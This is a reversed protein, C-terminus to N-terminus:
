ELPEPARAAAITRSIAIKDLGTLAPLSATSRSLHEAVPYHALDDLLERTEVPYAARIEADGLAAIATGFCTAAKHEDDGLKLRGYPIM